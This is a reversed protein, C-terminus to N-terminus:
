QYQGVLTMLLDMVLGLDVLLGSLMLLAKCEERGPGLEAELRQVTILIPNDWGRDSRRTASRGRELSNSLTNM